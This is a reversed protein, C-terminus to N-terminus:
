ASVLRELEKEVAPTLYVVVEQRLQLIGRITRAKAAFGEMFDFFVDLQLRREADSLHSAMDCVDEFEKPERRFVCAASSVLTSESEHSRGFANEVHIKINVYVKKGFSSPQLDLTLICEDGHQRHRM